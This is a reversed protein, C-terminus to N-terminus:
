VNYHRNLALSAVLPPLRHIMSTKVRRRICVNIIPSLTVMVIKSM